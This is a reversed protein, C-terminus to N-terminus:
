IELCARDFRSSRRDCLANRLSSPSRDARVPLLMQRLSYASVLPPLSFCTGDRFLTLNSKFPHVDVAVTAMIDTM